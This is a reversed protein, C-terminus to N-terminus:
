VLGSRKRGGCEASRVGFQAGAGRRAKADESNPQSWTLRSVSYQKAVVHVSGHVGFGLREVVQLDHRAAYARANKITIDVMPEM